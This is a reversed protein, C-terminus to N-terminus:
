FKADEVSLSPKARISPLCGTGAQKSERGTEVPIRYVLSGAQSSINERREM